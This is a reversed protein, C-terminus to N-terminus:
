PTIQFVIGYGYAGGYVTTGYLNGASDEILAAFPNQGDGSGGFSYLVTETWSGGTYTLEYVTGYGNDGGDETVGYLAGTSDLHLGAFPYAGDRSGGGEFNWLVTETWVGGSKALKFVNGYGYAGGYATTGYFAGKSGEVLVASPYQGDGGTSGFSWLVTETWVGGSLALEFVTGHGYAGGIQTTGYLAGGTDRHLGAVPYQGDSGSGFSHVVNYTWVGGSYTLDFVTGYGNAGGGPTTGYLTGTSSDRVLDCDPNWGDSGGGFSHLVNETWVGGSKALKFVTGIGNVGGEFTTGYLAGTSDQILGAGPDTGDTGDFKLLTREKWSGGSPTLEFVQGNYPSYGPGGGTGFLSGSRLLLRGGPNGCCLHEFSYLTSYTVAEAPLTLSALIAASLALSAAYPIRTM